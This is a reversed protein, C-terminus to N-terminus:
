YDLLNSAQQMAFKKLEPYFIEYCGRLTSYEQEFISFAIASEHLYLARHVVGQLSKELGWAYQYNYLWNQTQMYPLMRQFRDPLLSFNSQLTQYVKQCFNQLDAASNFENTDCALFHDFVVDVFAGSYLRYVPRFYQMARKAEIHADTFEDILRHLQIGKQISVPYDFKKKGKVFDSIMNGILIDPDNFSLLAHALYNM